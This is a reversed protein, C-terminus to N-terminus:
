TIAYDSAMTGLVGYWMILYSILVVFAFVFCVTSM